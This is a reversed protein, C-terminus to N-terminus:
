RILRKTTLASSPSYSLWKIVGVFPYQTSVRCAILFRNLFDTGFYCTSSFGDKSPWHYLYPQVSQSISQDLILALSPIPSPMMYWIDISMGHNKMTYEIQEIIVSRAAEIGLTQEIKIVHNSKTNRGDVEEIGVLAALNTGEALLNYKGKDQNIVAREVISIGKVVVKTLM